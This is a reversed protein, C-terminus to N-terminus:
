KGHVYNINPLKNLLSPQYLPQIYLEYVTTWFTAVALFGM